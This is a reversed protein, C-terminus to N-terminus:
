RSEIGTGGSIRDLVVLLLDAHSYSFRNDNRRRDFTVVVRKIVRNEVELIERVDDGDEIQGRLDQLFELKSAARYLAAVQEFEKEFVNPEGSIAGCALIDNRIHRTSFDDDDCLPLALARIM